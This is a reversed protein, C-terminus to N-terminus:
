TKAEHSMGKTELAIVLAALGWWIISMTDDVWVPLVLGIFALSIGSAWVGIALWSARRHWLAVMVLYFLWLFAALGYWGVEHAIMLYQNEIILSSDSLLSASGTSGVGAGFPQALMRSWGDQLSTLHGGNSDVSAGTTPNDHLIVNHVFSTDRITWGVSVLVLTGVALTIWRKRTMHHMLKLGIVLAIGILTGILASRSYSVWLAVLSAALVGFGAWKQWTQRLSRWHAMLFAVTLIAVSGAYAGLPNPGRLTSNERIYAPNEDVTLYPSITDKSYGLYKLADHPLVLQMLAFGMVIGVGILGIRVFAKRYEPHLKIFVYLLMFYLVYRLNIALGALAAEPSTPICFVMILNLLGYVGAAWLLPDRSFLSLKKLRMVHAFLLVAAVLMLIEKWAKVYVPAGHSVLWVTMPAHLVILGWIVLLLWAILQELLRRNM